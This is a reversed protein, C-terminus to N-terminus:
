AWSWTRYKDIDCITGRSVGFKTATARLSYGAFRMKRIAKVQDLTLKSLPHREGKPQNGRGKNEKDINNDRKTGLFLHAPNVCYPVDCRHLICLGAPVDGRYIQYAIRHAYAGKGKAIQFRGYPLSPKPNLSGTWLWCGSNPDPAVFKEFREQFTM